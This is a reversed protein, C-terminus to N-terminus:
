SNLHLVIVSAELLSSEWVRGSRWVIYMVELVIIVGYMYQKSVVAGRGLLDEHWRWRVFGM